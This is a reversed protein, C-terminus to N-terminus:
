IEDYQMHKNTVKEKRISEEKIKYEVNSRIKLEHNSIIIGSRSDVSRYLISKNYKKLYVRM